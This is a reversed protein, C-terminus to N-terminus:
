RCGRPWLGSRIDGDTVIGLEGNEARVIMSNVNEDSM